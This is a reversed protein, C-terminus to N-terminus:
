HQIKLEPKRELHKLDKQERQKHKTERKCHYKLIIKASHCLKNM